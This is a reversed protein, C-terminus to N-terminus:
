KNGDSQKKRNDNAKKPMPFTRVTEVGEADKGLQYPEVSAVDKMPYRYEHGGIRIVIDMKDFFCDGAEVPDHDEETGDTMTVRIGHQEPNDSVTKM